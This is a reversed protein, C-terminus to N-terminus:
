KENIPNINLLSIKKLSLISVEKYQLARKEILHWSLYGFLISIIISHLMLELTSLKFFYVLTQQVPFSYIYIGYSMDGIRGFNSIFPLATFGISLILITFLVHKVENYFEFYISALLFLISVYLIWKSKVKEFEVVALFSGCVFFTGLNFIHYGQMGLISSGAFRQIFFNYTILLIVLTSGLLIITLAKNKTFYFLLMLALYLSFEYRITWLSGNIAHYPNNDFIGKIGSQFNYLSLNNPLYTYVEMNKYFPINGNYVLPSLLLTILLVVFLAPFLRLFRKKLYDFINKSRQLSQFIFYGSIIFFGSLGLQAWVIQGNSIQYIWQSTESDGSLPYAHSIVVFVAFLFRLFDFNNNKHM